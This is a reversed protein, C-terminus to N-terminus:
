KTNFYHDFSKNQTLSNSSDDSGGKSQINENNSAIANFDVAEPVVGINYTKIISQKHSTCMRKKRTYTM